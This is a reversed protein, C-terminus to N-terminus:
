GDDGLRSDLWTPLLEQDWTNVTPDLHDLYYRQEESPKESDEYWPLHRAVYPTGTRLGHAGPRRPGPRYLAFTTDIDARYVGPEAEDIWFQAEWTVVEDRHRYEEPLDDIKLGFGVRDVEPYRDLLEAFKVVADLPCNEDPVVDPDTIVYARDAGVKAVLGSTWPSRHGLNGGAPVVTHPSTALADILPPYTSANDLLYVEDHGARDLWELLLRLPELRDRVIIIIPTAATTSTGKKNPRFWAM